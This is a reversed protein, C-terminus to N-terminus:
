LRIAGSGKEPTPQMSHASPTHCSSAANRNELVKIGSIEAGALKM